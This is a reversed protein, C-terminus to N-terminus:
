AAVPPDAPAKGCEPCPGGGGRRPYGCEACAARLWQMRTERTRLLLLAPGCLVGLTTVGAIIAWWSGWSCTCQDRRLASVYTPAAIALEVCTGALLWRVYRGLMGPDRTGGAHRLALAIVTGTALWAPILLWPVMVLAGGKLWDDPDNPPPTLALGLLDWATALIGLACLGGLISAGAVSARLSRGHAAPRATGLAPAVMMAPAGVGVAMIALTVVSQLDLNKLPEIAIWGISEFWETFFRTVPADPPKRGSVLTEVAACATAALALLATGLLLNCALLAALAPKRM